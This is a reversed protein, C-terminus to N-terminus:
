TFSFIGVELETPFVFVCEQWGQCLAVCDPPFGWIGAKGQPADPAPQWKEQLVSRMGEGKMGSCYYFWVELTERFPTRVWM